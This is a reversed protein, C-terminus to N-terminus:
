VVSSFKSESYANTVFSWLFGGQFASPHQETFLFLYFYDPLDVNTMWGTFLLYLEM